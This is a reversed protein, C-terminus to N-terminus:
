AIDKYRLEKKYKYFSNRSVGVLKICEEDTLTGDFDKSYKTIATKAAISKKTTLKTGAPLGLQKGNLKATLLGAKTNRQLDKVEKEAQEFAKKIQEKALAITYKNLAEIVATVFADTAVDGTSLQVQIQNELAKRYVETNIYSEHLFILNINENFLKEYLQCGEDANRSMRSVSDFVLTDGTKVVDLLKEFNERGTIKTGTYKDQVIIATPFHNTINRIQREINQKRTSVRCVGYVKNM